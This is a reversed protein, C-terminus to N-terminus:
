DWLELKTRYWCWYGIHFVGPNVVLFCSTIRITFFFKCNILTHLKQNCHCVWSCNNVTKSLFPTDVQRDEGRRGHHRRAQLLPPLPHLQAPPQDGAAGGHAPRHQRWLAALERLRCCPCKYIVAIREKSKSVTSNLKHHIISLIRPLVKLSEFWRKCLM